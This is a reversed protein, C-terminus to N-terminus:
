GREGDEKRLWSDRWRVTIEYADDDMSAAVPTPLSCFGASCSKLVLRPIVTEDRSRRRREKRRTKDDDEVLQCSEDRDTM